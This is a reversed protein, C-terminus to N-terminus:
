ERVPPKHWPPQGTSRAAATEAQRTATLTETLPGNPIFHGFTDNAFFSVGDISDANEVLVQRQYLYTRRDDLYTRYWYWPDVFDMGFLVRPGTQPNRLAAKSRLNPVIETREVLVAFTSVMIADLNQYARDTMGWASREVDARWYTDMWYVLKRGLCTRLQTFFRDIGAQREPSLPPAAAPDWFGVLGFQNGLMVGDLDFDNVFAITQSAVFDGALLGKAFGAPYAAYPRPDADLPLTVDIVGAMMHGGADAAVAAVEPHRVAKWESICFEPGPELYELLSVRLSRQEAVSRIAQYIGELTTYDMPQESLTFMPGASYPNFSREGGDRVRNLWDQNHRRTTANLGGPGTAYCNYRAWDFRVARHERGAYNLVHDGNGACFVITVPRGTLWAMHHDFFAEIGPRPNELDDFIKPTLWLCAELPVTTGTM